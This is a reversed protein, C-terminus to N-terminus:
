GLQIATGLSRLVARNIETEGMMLGEAAQLYDSRSESEIARALELYPMYPGSGDVLAQRVRDAVPISQLLEAFPQRFMCDLLSFVGCIFIEDRISEESSARTLEEMLMGRRVAAFMVPQMDADKSATALLLALWRKLRQYGLLMIAHRFSAIEIQFGFAASNIYRMLKYALSPDHKLSQELSEIDEGRDVQGILDVIVQLAPHVASRSPDDPPEGGLDDFPWGLVAAAGRRFSAEMDAMTRVGSQVHSISRVIGPQPAARDGIRRDDNLDIISYKFCPLIARPLESLPRGKILLTVGERHLRRISDVNAEDVAMFAPVEVMVNTPLGSGLLNRLLPESTVNLSVRAGGAPWVGAVAHLLEAADLDAGQRLAFVTLRTATVSRNRDIFPSYGLAVQGLIAIDFM